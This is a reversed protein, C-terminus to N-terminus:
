KLLEHPVMKLLMCEDRHSTEKRMYGRKDKYNFTKFKCLLDKTIEISHPVWNNSSYM